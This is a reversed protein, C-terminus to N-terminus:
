DLLKEIGERLSVKACWGLQKLSTNDAHSHMLEGDTRQKRGFLLETSAGSQQKVMECFARVTTEIGTGIEFNYFVGSCFRDINEVICQYASVVDDVYVWDRSQLGDTLEISSVNKKIQGVFYPVFKNLSDGTGYVHQLEANIFKVHLSSINDRIYERFIYKTKTYADLYVSKGPEWGDNLERTFFSDTNIFFSAGYRDATKLLRMPFSVNTEMVDLANGESRGYATACHIVGEVAHTRFFDSISSETNQVWTIADYFGELRDFSSHERYICAIENTRLLAKVLNSGIFGTGGTVLIM